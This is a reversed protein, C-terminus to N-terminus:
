NINWNMKQGKYKCHLLRSYNVIFDFDNCKKFFHFIIHSFIFFANNCVDLVGSKETYIKMLSLQFFDMVVRVHGVLM